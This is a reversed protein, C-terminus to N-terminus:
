RRWELMGGELSAAKSFGVSRAFSCAQASRQGTRCIFIFASDTAYESIQDSLTDLPWNLADDLHDEAFEEPERVDILILPESQALKNLLMLKSINKMDM